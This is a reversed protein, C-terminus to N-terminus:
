PGKEEQARRKRIETLARERKWEAFLRAFRRRNLFGFTYHTPKWMGAYGGGAIWYESGTKRDKLVLDTEIFDEPRERIAAEFDDIIQRDARRLFSMM